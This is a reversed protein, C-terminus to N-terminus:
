PTVRVLVLEGVAAWRAVRDAAGAEVALVTLLDRDANREFGVLLVEVREADVVDGTPVAWLTDGTQTTAPYREARVLAGVEVWGDPVVSTPRILGPSLLDGPSLSVAATLGVLGELQEAAFLQTADSDVAVGTTSLASAPIADGAAVPEVVVVVDTRDGVQGLAWLM